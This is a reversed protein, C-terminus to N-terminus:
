NNQDNYFEKIKEQLELMQDRIVENISGADLLVTKGCNQKLVQGSCANRIDAVSNISNNIFNQLMSYNALYFTGRSEACVVYIYLNSIEYRGLFDGIKVINQHVDRGYQQKTQMVKISLEKWERHFDDERVVRGNVADDISPPLKVGISQLISAMM